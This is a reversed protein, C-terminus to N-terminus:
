QKDAPKSKLEKVEKELEQVRAELANVIQKTDESVQQRSEATAAAASSEQRELYKCGPLLFLGAVVVCWAAIIPRVNEGKLFM